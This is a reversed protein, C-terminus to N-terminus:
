FSASIQSMMDNVSPSKEFTADSVSSESDQLKIPLDIDLDFSLNDLDVYEQVEEVFSDIKDSFFDNTEALINNDNILKVVSFLATCM